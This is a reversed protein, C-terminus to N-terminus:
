GDTLVEFAFHDADPPQGSRGLRERLRSRARNLRSRVTGVPVDIAEAIQVYTLDTWAVLLLVDRDGPALTAVADLLEGGLREADLRAVAGELGGDGHAPREVRALARVRRVETRRHRRLLNTAIGFLWPRAEPRAQDYRHRADFAATFVEAAIDPAADPGVRRYLYARVADYHRDFLRGFAQPAELSSAIVEADTPEEM